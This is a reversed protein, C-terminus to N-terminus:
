FLSSKEIFNQIFLLCETYIIYLFCLLSLSHFSLSEDSLYCHAPCFRQHSIFIFAPKIDVKRMTGRLAERHTLHKHSSCCQKKNRVSWKMGTDDLGYLCRPLVTMRSEVLKKPPSPSPFPSRALFKEVQGQVPLGNIVSIVTEKKPIPSTSMDLM